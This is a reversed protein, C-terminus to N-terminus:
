QSHVPPPFRGLSTPSKQSQTPLRASSTTPHITGRAPIPCAAVLALYLGGLLMMPVGVWAFDFIELSGRGSEEALGNVILNTSTGVLTACGGLIAAYSLPIMLKSAAVKRKKSWHSIYPMMMAVLPTNNFFASAPAVALMMRGIFGSPSQAPQFLKDFLVNIVTSKKIIESLVLLLVIIAISDNALGALVDKPSLVGFVALAAIVLLFAISPRFWDLYLAPLLFAIAGFVLLIEFAPM